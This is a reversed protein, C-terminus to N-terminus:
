NRSATDLEEGTAVDRVRASSDDSPAVIVVARESWAAVVGPIIPVQLSKELLGNQEPASSTEHWSTLITTRAAGRHRCFGWLISCFLSLVQRIQPVDINMSFFSAGGTDLFEVEM